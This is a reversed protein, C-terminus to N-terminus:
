TNEREKAEKAKRREEKSYICGCYDQRYLNYERSLEISQKYGEKKKFDTPVYEAGVENAIEMGIKNILQANKLPSLTLTTAFYDFGNNKAYEATKRLRIDFCITCREGREPCTEYGKTRIFFEEKEQPMIVYDIKYKTKGAENYADILRMQENARLMYEEDISINPNYYFVTVPIYQATYVLCYSSCPACCSHLLLRKNSNQEKLFREFEDSVNM